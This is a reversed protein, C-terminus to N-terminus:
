FSIFRRVICYVNIMCRVIVVNLNKSARQLFDKIKENCLYAFMPACLSLEHVVVKFVSRKCEGVGSSFKVERRTTTKFEKRFLCQNVVKANEIFRIHVLYHIKRAFDTSEDM